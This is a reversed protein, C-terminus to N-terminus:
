FYGCMKIHEAKMAVGYFYKILNATVEQEKKKRDGGLCNATHLLLQIGGEWGGATLFENSHFM